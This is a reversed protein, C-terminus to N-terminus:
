KSGLGVGDPGVGDDARGLVQRGLHDADGTVVLGCRPPVLHALRASFVPAPRSFPSTLHSPPFAQAQCTEKITLSDLTLRNRPIRNKQHLEQCVSVLEGTRIGSPIGTRHVTSPGHGAHGVGRNQVSANFM